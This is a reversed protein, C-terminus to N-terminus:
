SCEFSKTEHDNWVVGTVSSIETWTQGDDSSKKMTWDVPHLLDLGQVKISYSAVTVDSTFHYQLWGTPKYDESCYYKGNHWGRKTAFAMGATYHGHYHSEATAGSDDATEFKTGEADFFSLTNVCWYRNGGNKTVDMRYMSAPTAVAPACACCSTSEIGLGVDYTGCLDPHSTYLACEALDTDCGAHAPTPTTSASCEGECTTPVVHTATPWDYEQAIWAHCTTGGPKTETDANSCHTYSPVDLSLVFKSTDVATSDCTDPTDFNSKDEDAEPEAFTTLLHDIRCVLKSMTLWLQQRNGLRLLFSDKLDQLGVLTICDDLGVCAAGRSSHYECWKDEHALQDMSCVRMTGVPEFGEYETAQTQALALSAALTEDVRHVTTSPGACSSLADVTYANWAKESQRCAKHKQRTAIMADSEVTEGSAGLVAEAHLSCLNHLGTKTNFETQDAGNETELFSSFQTTLSLKLAELVEEEAQGWEGDTDGRRGELESVLSDTVALNVGTGVETQNPQTDVDMRSTGFKTQLLQLEDFGEPFIQSAVALPCWVHWFMNTKM